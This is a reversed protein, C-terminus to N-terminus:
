YNRDVVFPQTYNTRLTGHYRTEIKIRYTGQDEDIDFSVNGTDDTLAVRDQITRLDTEEDPITNKSIVGNELAIEEIYYSVLIDKLDYKNEDIDTNNIINFTCKHNNRTLRIHNETDPNEGNVIIPAFNTPRESDKPWFAWEVTIDKMEPAVFSTVIKRTATPDSVSYTGNRRNIARVLYEGEKIEQLYFKFTRDDPLKKFDYAPEANEIKDKTLDPADSKILEVAFAGAYDRADNSELDIRAIVTPLTNADIYTYDKLKNPLDEIVGEWALDDSFEDFLSNNNEIDLTVKPQLAAPITLISSEAVESNRTSNAKTYLEAGLDRTMQAEENMVPHEEDYVGNVKVYYETGVKLDANDLVKEFYSGGNVHAQAKVQYQGAYMAKFTSGKVYFVPAESKNILALPSNDKFILNNIGKYEVKFTTTKYNNLKLSITRSNGDSITDAKVWFIIHGNGLNVSKAELVDEETLTYGNWMIGVISELGTNIDLGIWQGAGQSPNSSNFTRLEDHSTLYIVNSNPLVSVEITEQNFNIDESLHDSANPELKKVFLDLFPDTNEEENEKRLAKAQEYTLPHITDIKGVKNTDEQYYINGDDKEPLSVQIYDKKYSEFSATRGMPINGKEAELPNVSWTYNTDATNPVVVAYASLTLGTSYDNNLDQQTSFYEVSNLGTYQKDVYDGSKWIPKEIASITNDPYVSDSFRKIYNNSDSTVTKPDVLPLTDNITVSAALTNLSYDINGSSQTYFTVSFTLTGKKPTMEKDIIFGFMVKDPNLDANPAFAEVSKVESPAKEGAGMFNWNIAVQTDLLDQNDFYRDISLVLMEAMHDGYVGVGTKKIDSPVKIARTNANIEFIEEDAPMLLLYGGPIENGKGKNVVLPIIHSKLNNFYETISNIRLPDGAEELANNILEFAPAYYLGSNEATIKTIM